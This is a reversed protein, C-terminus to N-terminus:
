FGSGGGSATGFVSNILGVVIKIIAYFWTLLLIGITINLLNKKVKTMDGGKHIGNTVMLFGNYIILMVAVVLGIYVMWQLYPAINTRLYDLTNAIKYQRQYWWQQDSANNLATEQISYDKNAQGAVNDLVEIPTGGYLWRSDTQASVKSSLLWWATLLFLGMILPFCWILIKKINRM